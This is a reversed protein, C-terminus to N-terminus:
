LEHGQEAMYQRIFGLSSVLTNKVTNPSISLAAAIEPIKMGEDRSMQYIKRRRQPLKSVAERVLRYVERVQIVNLTSHDGEAAPDVEKLDALRNERISKKKLYRYCENIAITYVWANLDRVEPLKDRNMWLRMFTEQIIERTDETSHTLGRIFPQLGELYAYFLRSFAKEDGQAIQEM